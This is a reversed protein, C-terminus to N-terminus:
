ADPSTIVKLSDQLKATYRNLAEIIEDDERERSQLLLTSVHTLVLPLAVCACPLLASPVQAETVLANQIKAIEEQAFAHFREDGRIRNSSYTDLANKLESYKLERDRKM